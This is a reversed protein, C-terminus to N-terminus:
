ANGCKDYGCGNRAWVGTNFSTCSYTGVAKRKNCASDGCINFPGCTRSCETQDGYVWLASFSGAPGSHPTLIAYQSAYLTHKTISFPLFQGASAVSLLSATAAIFLTSFQM